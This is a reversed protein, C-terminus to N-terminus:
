FNLSVRFFGDPTDSGPGLRTALYYTYTDGTSSYRKAIGIGSTSLNAQMIESRGSHNENILGSVNFIKDGSGSTTVTLSSTSFNVFTNNPNKGSDYAVRGDSITILFRLTSLKGVKLSTFVTEVSGYMDTYTLPNPNILFEQIWTNLSKITDSTTTTNVVILYTTDNVKQVITSLASSLLNKLNSLNTQAM